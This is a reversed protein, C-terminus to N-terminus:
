SWSGSWRPRCWTPVRPWAAPTPAGTAPRGSSTDTQLLTAIEAAAEPEAALADILARLPLRQGLEDGVAQYARCRLRDAEAFAATVLTSKGIGPEGELWVIGGRGYAVATLAGALTAFEDDRGLPPVTGTAPVM